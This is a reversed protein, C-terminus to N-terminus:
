HPLLLFQRVQARSIGVIFLHLRLNGIKASVAFSASESIRGKAALSEWQSATGDFTTNTAHDVQSQFAIPHKPLLFM